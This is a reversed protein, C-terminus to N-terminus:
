EKVIEIENDEDFLRATIKANILAGITAILNVGMFNGSKAQAHMEDTVIDAFINDFEEKTIKM